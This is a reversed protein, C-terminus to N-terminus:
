EPTINPAAVTAMALNSSSSASNAKNYPQSITEMTTSNASLKPLYGHLKYYTSTYHEQRACHDFTPRYRDKRCTDINSSDGMFKNAALLTSAEVKSPSVHFERQTKEQLILSYVRTVSPLPDMLLIQSHIVGYSDNLGMLFQMVRKQQQYELLEKLAGWSCSRPSQYSGLEDWPSKLNNFYAALPISEQQLYAIARKIQFICPANKQSFCNCLDTWIKFTTDVYIINNALDSTVSNFIWSLVMQNCCEWRSFSSNTTTPKKLSCNIFGIKNKTSFTMCVAWSWTAYNDGILPQSVFMVRPSDSLHLFYPNSDLDSSNSSSPVM